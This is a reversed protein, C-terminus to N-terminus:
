AIDNLLEVVKPAQPRSKYSVDQNVLWSVAWSLFEVDVM